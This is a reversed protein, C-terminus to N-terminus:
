HFHFSLAACEGHFTETEKLFWELWSGNWNMAKLEDFCNQQYIRPNLAFQAREILAPLRILVLFMRNGSKYECFIITDELRILNSRIRGLSLPDVPSLYNSQTTPMISKQLQSCGTHRIHSFHLPTFRGTASHLQNSKYPLPSASPQHTIFGDVIDASLISSERTVAPNIVANRGKEPNGPRHTMISYDAGLRRILTM